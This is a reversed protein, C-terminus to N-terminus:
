NVDILTAAGEKKVVRGISGRINKDRSCGTLTAPNKNHQPPKIIM